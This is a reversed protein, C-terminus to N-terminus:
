TTKSKTNEMIPFWYFVLGDLTHEFYDLINQLNSFDLM